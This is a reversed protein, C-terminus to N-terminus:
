PPPSLPESTSSLRDVSGLLVTNLSRALSRSSPPKSRSQNKALNDDGFL